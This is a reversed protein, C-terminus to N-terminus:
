CWGRLKLFVSTFALGSLVYLVFCRVNNCRQTSYFFVVVGYVCESRISPHLSWLRSTQSNHRMNSSVLFNFFSAHRGLKYSNIQLHNRKLVRAEELLPLRTVTQSIFRFWMYLFNLSSWLTFILPFFRYPLALLIVGPM